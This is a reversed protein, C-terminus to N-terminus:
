QNEKAFFTAAKKLIEREMKLTAVERRLERIEVKEAMTFGTKTGQGVESAEVWRRLASDSIGLEEAAKAVSRGHQQVLAVAESKFSKSFNRRKM